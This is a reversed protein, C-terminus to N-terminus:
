KGTAMEWVRVQFRDTYRVNHRVALNWVLQDCMKLERTTSGAPMLLVRRRELPDRLVYDYDEIISAWDEESSVVFKWWHNAHSMIQDLAAKRVRMSFPMGSNALKASCNVQHVYRYRTTYPTYEETFLKDIHEGSISGNTEMEVFPTAIKGFEDEYEKYATDMFAIFDLTNNPMTPEGGSFILHTSGNMINKWEGIARLHDIVESHSWQKGAKWVVETDCWFTVKEGDPGIQGVMSGNHGGCNHTVLGNVIFTNYPACTLDYARLRERAISYGEEKQWWKKKYKFKRIAVVRRGNHVLYDEKLTAIDDRVGPISSFDAFTCEYGNARYAELKEKKWQADRHSFVKGTSWYVEILRNTGKVRFDPYHTKGKHQLPLNFRGIYEVPLEQKACMEAFLKESKSMYPFHENINQHMGQSRRVVDTDHMPNKERLRDSLDQRLKSYRDPDTDRLRLISPIYTGASKAAAIAKSVKQGMAQWDTNALHKQMVAPEHIPKKDGKMRHSRKESQKVFLIEDGERLDGAPVWGRNTLWPHEASCLYRDFKLDSSDGEKRNVMIELWEDLEYEFAAQVVTDVVNNADDVALLMDGAKVDQLPVKRGNTWVHPTSTGKKVGISIFNCQSFRLFVAPVGATVGEGQVCDGFIEALSVTTRPKEEKGAAREPGTRLDAM